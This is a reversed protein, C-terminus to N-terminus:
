RLDRPPGATPRAGARGGSRLRVHDAHRLRPWAPHAPQVHQPDPGRWIGGLPCMPRAETYRQRAETETYPGFLEGGPEASLWLDAPESSAHGPQRVMPPWTRLITLITSATHYGLAIVQRALDQAQAPQTAPDGNISSDPHPTSM